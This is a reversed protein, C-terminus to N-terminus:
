QNSVNAAAQCLFWPMFASFQYWQTSVAVAKNRSRPIAAHFSEFDLIQYAMDNFLETWRLVELNDPVYKSELIGHYNSEAMFVKNTELKQYNAMKAAPM